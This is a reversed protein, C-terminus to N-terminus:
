KVNKKLKKFRVLQEPCREGKKKQACLQLAVVVTKLSLRALGAMTGQGWVPGPPHHQLAAGQPHWRWRSLVPSVAM